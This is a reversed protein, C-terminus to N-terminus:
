FIGDTLGKALDALGAFAVGLILVPATIAFVLGKDVGAFSFTREPLRERDFLYMVKLFRAYYGLGIVTNLLAIVGGWFFFPSSEAGGFAFVEKLLFFKGVFGGTPPLGILGLLCIAMCIGFAPATFGLGTFGDIDSRGTEREVVAVMFFAGLTMFLYVAMYFVVAAAGAWSTVAVGMLLYGAHAIASYALLRKAHRQRLAAVNGITMTILAMSLLVIRVTENHATLAERALETVGQGGGTAAGVFRLIAAFGAGKSAVALFAAVSTPAGEYVDPCWFQFPAAAIKYAMGAFVLVVAILFAPSGSATGAVSALSNTGTITATGAFGYLLSMGYLMLGSSIAGFIVYKLAAESAQPNDKKFGALLYGAISLTEIAIYLMALNNAAATLCAGLVAGLLCVFFETRARPLDGGRLAAVSAVMGTGIALVRFAKALGDARLLSTLMADGGSPQWLAVLFALVFAVVSVTVAVQERRARGALLDAVILVPIALTLIAEAGFHSFLASLDPIWQEALLM